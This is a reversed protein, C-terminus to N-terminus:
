KDEVPPTADDAAAADANEKSVDGSSTHDTKEKPVAKEDRKALEGELQSLKELRRKHKLTKEAELDKRKTELTSLVAAIEEVTSPVVLGLAEVSSIVHFSHTRIVQVQFRFFFTRVCFCM